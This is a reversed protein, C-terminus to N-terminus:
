PCVSFVSAAENRAQKFNCRTMLANCKFIMRSWLSLGLDFISLPASCLHLKDGVFFLRVFRLWFVKFLLRCVERNCGFPM